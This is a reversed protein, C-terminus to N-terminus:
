HFNNVERKWLTISTNNVMLPTNSVFKIAIFALFSLFEGDETFYSEMTDGHSIPALYVLAYQDM